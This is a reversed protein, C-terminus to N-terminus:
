KGIEKRGGKYGTKSGRLVQSEVVCHALWLKLLIAMSCRVGPLADPFLPPVPRSGTLPHQLPPSYVPERKRAPATHIRSNGTRRQENPMRKKYIAFASAVQRYSSHFALPPLVMNNPDTFQCPTGQSVPANSLSSTNNPDTLRNLWPYPAEM